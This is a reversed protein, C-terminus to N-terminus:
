QTGPAERLRDVIKERSLDRQGETALRGVVLDLLNLEELVDLADQRDVNIERTVEYLTNSRKVTDILTDVTVEDPLGIGDSLVVPETPEVATAASPAGEEGTDDVAARHDDDEDVPQGSENPGEHEPDVGADPGDSDAVGSGDASGDDDAATRYSNPQHIDYDIMYRRVTEATVDMDIADAMQAFTDCSEYVDALLDPDKFPPVDTDRADPDGEAARTRQDASPDCGDDSTVGPESDAPPSADRREAPLGDRPTARITATVTGGPDVSADLLEVDVDCDGAPVLPGSSDVAFRLRGDAGLRPSCLAGEEGSGEAGRRSLAIEAVVSLTDEGTSGDPDAMSVGAVRRDAGECQDFFRGLERFSGGVTM